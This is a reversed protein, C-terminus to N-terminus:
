KEKESSIYAKLKEIDKNRQEGMGAYQLPVNDQRFRLKGEQYTSDFESKGLVFHMHEHFIPLLFKRDVADALDNSWTDAYDSSFYPPNIYGLVEAWKRHLIPHTAFNHPHALGEGGDTGYFLAIKDEIKDFSSRVVTDWGKTKMILDDGGLFMIDGKAKSFLVNAMKSMLIRPGMFPFVNPFDKALQAAVPPSLSDDDDMYLYLSISDLDDSTEVISDWFRKLSDPRNRTPLLIAIKEM